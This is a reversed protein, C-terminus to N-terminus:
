KLKHDFKWTACCRAPVHFKVVPHGDRCVIKGETTREHIDFGDHAIIEGCIGKFDNWTSIKSNTRNLALVIKEKEPTDCEAYLYSWIVNNNSHMQIIAPLGNSEILNAFAEAILANKTPVVVRHNIKTGMAYYSTLTTKKGKTEICIDCYMFQAKFM